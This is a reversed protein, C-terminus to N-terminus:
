AFGSRLERAFAGTADRLQEVTIGLIEKTAAALGADANSADGQASGANVLARLRQQGFHDVIYLVTLWADTYNRSVSASDGSYFDEGSELRPWYHPNQLQDWMAEPLGRRELSAVPDGPASAGPAHWAVYEAIGESLWVPLAGATATWTSLHGIEHRLVARAHDADGTKVISAGVVIRVGAPVAPQGPTSRAFVDHVLAEFEAPSASPLQDAKAQTSGATADPSRGFWSDLFAQDAVAYIVVKGNWASAPWVSGAEDLALQARRALRALDGQSYGRGVVLVDGTQETEVPGSAWPEGGGRILVGTEDQEAAPAWAVGDFVFTVGLRESVPLRDWGSRLTYERALAAVVAPRAHNVTLDPISIWEGSWTYRVTSLPAASLATYVERLQAAFAPAAPSAVSEFAAVDHRELAGNMVKLTNKIDSSRREIQATTLSWGSVQDHVTSRTTSRMSPATGPGPVEPAARDAAPRLAVASPREPAAVAVLIAAAVIALALAPSLWVVPHRRRREGQPRGFTGLWSGRSTWARATRDRSPTDDSPTSPDNPLAM